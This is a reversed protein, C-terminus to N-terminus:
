YILCSCCKSEREIRNRTRQMETRTEKTKIQSSNYLDWMKKNKIRSSQKSFSINYFTKTDYKSNKCNCVIKHERETSINSIDVLNENSICDRFTVKHTRSDTDIANGFADIRNNRTFVKKMKIPLVLPKIEIQKRRPQSINEKSARKNSKLIECKIMSM